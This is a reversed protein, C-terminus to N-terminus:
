RDIRMIMEVMVFNKVESQLLLQLDHQITRCRSMEQVVQLLIIVMVSVLSQVIQIM